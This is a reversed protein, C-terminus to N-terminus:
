RRLTGAAVRATLATPRRELGALQSGYQRELWLELSDAVLANGQRSLLNQNQCYASAGAERMTPLLDLTPLRHAQAMLRLRRQPLEVDIADAVYGMRRQLTSLLVENIQFDSPILVIGLPVDYSHCTEALRKMHSRLAKWRGNM